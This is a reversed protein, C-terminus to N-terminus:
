ESTIWLGRLRQKSNTDLYVSWSLQNKAESSTRLAWPIDNKSILDFNGLPNEKKFYLCFRVVFLLIFPIEKCRGEVGAQFVPALGPLRAARRHGPPLRSSSPRLNFSSLCPHPRAQLHWRVTVDVGLWRGAAVVWCWFVNELWRPLNEQSQQCFANRFLIVPIM